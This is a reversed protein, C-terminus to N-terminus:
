ADGYHKAYADDLVKALADYLKGVEPQDRWDQKAAEYIESAKYAETKGARKIFIEGNRANVEVVKMQFLDLAFKIDSQRREFAVRRNHEAIEAESPGWTGMEVHTGNVLKNREAGCSVCREVIHAGGYAQPNEDTYPRVFVPNTFGYRAKVAPTHQCTGM